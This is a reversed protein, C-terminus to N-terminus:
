STHYYLFYKIIYITIVSLNYEEKLIISSSSKILKVIDKIINENEVKNFLKNKIKKM